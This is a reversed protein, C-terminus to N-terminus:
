WIKRRRWIKWLSKRDVRVEIAGQASPAHQTISELQGKALAQKLPAFWAHELEQAAATWAHIDGYHCPSDLHDLVILSTGSNKTAGLWAYANEPLTACPTNSAQSFARALADNAWIAAFPSRPKEALRGGGWLWASNIPMEGREERALNVPHEHLLMQIENITTRWHRADKGSPLHDDMYGGAAKGLPQTELAPAQDLRLYWRDPSPSFFKMGDSAFHQNLIGTLTEAETQSLAFSQSDTVILRDRSVRLNIPDARLWYHQGPEIGDARLTIPAVPWDQQKAIGFTRCLWESSDGTSAETQEGRSLLTQLAPLRLASDIEHRMPRPPRLGPILLHCHMARTYCGQHQSGIAM